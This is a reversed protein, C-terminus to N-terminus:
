IKLKKIKRLILEWTEILKYQKEIKNSIEKTNNYLDKMTKQNKNNITDPQFCKPCRHWFCGHFQYVINTEECYGDVKYGIIQKEGGNM